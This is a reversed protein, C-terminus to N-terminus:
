GGGRVEAALAAVEERGPLGAMAGVRTTALAAAANALGAARGLEMGEALFAAVAGSFADGAGTADVSRVPIRPLWQEGDDSALLNGASGAAVIAAGVGRTRLVSAARQASSRDSVSIGTLAHAEGENCRLVDVSRLLEDPLERPPAPDLVITAGAAKGLKAALMVPEAPLELQMLLVKAGGLLSAANRVDDGGVGDNAGPVALIQKEGDARVHILAVGTRRVDDRSVYRTDIGERELQELIADGEIDRGVRAVFAVRAGLRAAAVAQNAGKGGPARTFEHGQVTDGPAPLVPGRALYDMNAGGLVVVEFEASM